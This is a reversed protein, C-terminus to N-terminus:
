PGDADAVSVDIATRYKEIAAPIRGAREDDRADRLARTASQPFSNPPMRTAVLFRYLCPPRADRLADRVLDWQQTSSQQAPLIGAVTVDRVKEMM